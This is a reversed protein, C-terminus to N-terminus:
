NEKLYKRFQPFLKFNDTLQHYIFTYIPDDVTILYQQGNKPTFWVVDYESGHVLTILEGATKIHGGKYELESFTQNSNLIYNGKEDINYLTNYHSDYHTVAKFGDKYLKIFNNKLSVSDGETGVIIWPFGGVDSYAVYVDEKYLKTSLDFDVM